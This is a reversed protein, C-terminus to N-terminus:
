RDRCNKHKILIKKVLGSTNRMKKEDDEIKKEKDQRRRRKNTQTM